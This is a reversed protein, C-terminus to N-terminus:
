LDKRYDFSEYLVDLKHDNIIVTDDDFWEIIVKDQRYNWYINKPRKNQKNYSLEGRVAPATLTGESVYVKVTYAGNPSQVESILEGKPLRNMDFFLSYTGYDLFVIIIAVTILIIKKLLGFWRM